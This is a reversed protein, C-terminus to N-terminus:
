HSIDIGLNDILRVDGVWAAIVLRVPRDIRDPRILTAQDVVLAYDLVPYDSKSVGAIPRKLETVMVSEVSSVDRLGDSIVAKASFLARSLALAAKKQDKSLRLNRSSLALGDSDRVIPVGAIEVPFHMEDVMRSIIALQQFDKEGFYAECEGALIFLKAVVTAVGSFHGQRSKGELIEAIKGVEVRIMVPEPHMQDRSPLFVVDVGLSSAFELDAQLTVPYNVLDNSNDFQLPNVFISLVVVDSRKRAAKILEGHGSHLAGMTPVLGISLGQSRYVQCLRQFEGPDSIQKM